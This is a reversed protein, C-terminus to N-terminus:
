QDALRFLDWIPLIEWRNQTSWSGPKDQDRAGYRFRKMNTYSLRIAKSLKCNVKAAYADIQRGDVDFLLRQDNRFTVIERQGAAKAFSSVWLGSTLFKSLKM